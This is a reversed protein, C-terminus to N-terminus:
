RKPSLRGYILNARQWMELHYLSAPVKPVCGTSKIRPESLRDFHFDDGSDTIQQSYLLLTNTILKSGSNRLWNKLRREKHNEKLAKVDPAWQLWLYMMSQTGTLNLHLWFTLRCTDYFLYEKPCSSTNRWDARNKVFLFSSGSCWLTKHGPKGKCTPISIVGLSLYLAWPCCKNLLLRQWM